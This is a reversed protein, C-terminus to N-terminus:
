LKVAHILYRKYTFELKRQEEIRKQLEELYKFHTDVSFDDVIWPVARLFYVLAGVDLFTVKGEWDEARKLSFGIKEFEPKKQYLIMTPWKQKVEFFDVLDQLNDGAVQQSFFTGNQQLIRHLEPISYGGHRNLVLDFTADKFPLPKSEIAEIVQAGLPELNKKAVAVNPHWGEIAVAHSPFPALQSFREGGGTAMDLLSHSDKVLERALALYDWFPNEEIMRGNLYSFDWGEFHATEDKKWQKYMETNIM